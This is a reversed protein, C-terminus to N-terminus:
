LDDIEADSIDQLRFVRVNRRLEVSLQWLGLSDFTLPRPLAGPERELSRFKALWAEAADEDQSRWAHTADEL